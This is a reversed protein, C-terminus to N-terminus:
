VHKNSNYCECPLVDLSFQRRNFKLRLYVICLPTCCHFFTVQIQIDFYLIRHHTKVLKLSDVTTEQVQLLSFVSWLKEKSHYSPLRIRTKKKIIIFIKDHDTCLLVVDIWLAAPLCEDAYQTQSNWHWTQLHWVIGVEATYLVNM